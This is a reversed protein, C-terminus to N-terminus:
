FHISSTTHQFFIKYHGVNRPSPLIRLGPQHPSHFLFFYYKLSAHTAIRHVVKGRVIKHVAKLVLECHIHVALSPKSLMPPLEILLPDWPWRYRWGTGTATAARSAQGVQAAHDVFPGKGRRSAAATRHQRRDAM